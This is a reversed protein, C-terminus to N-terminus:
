SKNMFAYDAVNDRVAQQILHLVENAPTEDDTWYELISEVASRLPEAVTEPLSIGTDLSVPSGKYNDEETCFQPAYVSLAIADQDYVKALGGLRYRLYTMMAGSVTGQPVAITLTYSPEEILNLGDQWRGMVRGAQVVQYGTHHSALLRTVASYVDEIFQAQKKDSMTKTGINFGFSVTISTTSM